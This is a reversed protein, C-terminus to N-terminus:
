RHILEKYTNNFPTFCVGDVLGETALSIAARFNAIASQGGALSAEGVATEEPDLHGLDWFVTQTAALADDSNNVVPINLRVGAHVEGLGLVRRDGIVIMQAAAVVDADQLLGATLEPSIGCPDGMALALRPATRSTGNIM